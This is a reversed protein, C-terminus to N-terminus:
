EIYLIGLVKLDRLKLLHQVRPPQPAVELLVRAVHRGQPVVLRQVRDLLLRVELVDGVVDDGLRELPHCRRCRAAASLPLPELSPAGRLGLSLELPVLRVRELAELHLSSLFVFEALDIM